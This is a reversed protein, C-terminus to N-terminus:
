FVRGKEHVKAVINIYSGKACCFEYMQLMEIPLSLLMKDLKMFRDGSDFIRFDHNYRISKFNLQSVM